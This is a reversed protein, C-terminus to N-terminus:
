DGLYASIVAPDGLVDRPTGSAIIQGRDLVYLKDSISSIFRMNHEIILVAVGKDAVARFVAAMEESEVENMGAVPEDLLVVRPDSAFARMMEVKRQHGYSLSGALHNAYGRMGFEDLLAMARDRTERTQRRSGPLGLLDSWTGSSELRYFGIMVNELVTEDTLLRINQFTRAVGMDGIDAAPLHAVDVGDLEIAGNSLTLMGTILNVITTKGAGNPGIVGTVKGAPVEISVDKAAVVGGFSKDVNKLSLGGM